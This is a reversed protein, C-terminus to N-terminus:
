GMRPSWNVKLDFSITGTRDDYHIPHRLYFREQGAEYVALPFENAPDAHEGFYHRYFDLAM